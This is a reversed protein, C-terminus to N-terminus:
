SASCSSVTVLTRLDIVQEIELSRVSFGVWIGGAAAPTFPVSFTLSDGQELSDVHWVRSSASCDALQAGPCAPSVTASGLSARPVTVCVELESLRDEVGDSSRAHITIVATAQQGVLVPATVAYEIEDNCFAGQPTCSYHSSPVAFLSM